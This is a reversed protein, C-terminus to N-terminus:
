TGALNLFVPLRPLPLPWFLRVHISAKTPPLSCMRFPGTCGSAHTHAGFHFITVVLLVHRAVLKCSVSSTIM